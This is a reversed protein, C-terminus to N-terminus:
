RLNTIENIMKLCCKMFHCIKLFANEILNQSKNLCKKHIRWFWFTFHQKCSVESSQEFPNKKIMNILTSPTTLYPPRSQIENRM